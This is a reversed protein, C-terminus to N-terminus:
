QWAPGNVFAYCSKQVIQTAQDNCSPTAHQWAHGNEHTGARPSTVNFHKFLKKLLQEGTCLCM